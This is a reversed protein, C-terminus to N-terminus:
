QFFPKGIPDITKPIHHNELKRSKPHSTTPSKSKAPMAMIKLSIM